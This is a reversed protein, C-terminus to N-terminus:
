SEVLRHYYDQFRSLGAAYADHNKLNPRYTRARPYKIDSWKKIIKLDRFALFAAGLSTAEAVGNTKLPVGFIDCVIQAFLPDSAIGGGSIIIEEAHPFREILKLRVDDFTYACSELSARVIDASTSHLNMGLVAARATSHWGPSREGAWFPLVTLGHGDPKIRAVAKSFDADDGWQFQHKLWAYVNGGNAFAGGYVVNESDVRYCFLGKTITLNEGVPAATVLRLAASTGVNLALRRDDYAGSGINSCAGDGVAPFWPLGSLPGLKEKFESTIGKLPGQDHLDSLTRPDLQLSDLIDQDWGANQQNFLGTGSAMSLSSQHVGFLRHILYEGYGMWITVKNVLDPQTSRLWLLKAPWFCPHLECGTKHHYLEDNFIERLKPVEIAARTDAWSYVPTSAKGNAGVGLLSHWFCSIGVGVFRKRAAGAKRLLGIICVVTHSLLEEADIEVGGNHSTRQTYKIQSDFLPKGAIDFAIARVSSSGIDLAVVVPDSLRTQDDVLATFWGLFANGHLL